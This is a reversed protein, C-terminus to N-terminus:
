LWGDPSVDSNSGIRGVFMWLIWWFEVSRQLQVSKYRKAVNSNQLLNTSKTRWHEGCTPLNLRAPLPVVEEAEQCRYSDTQTHRLTSNRNHLLPPIRNLCTSVQEKRMPSTALSDRFPDSCCWRAGNTSQYPIQLSVQSQSDTYYKGLCTRTKSCSFTVHTYVIYVHPYYM